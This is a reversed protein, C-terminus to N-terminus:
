SNLSKVRGRFQHKFKVALDITLMLDGRLRSVM